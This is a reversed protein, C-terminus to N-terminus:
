PGVITYTCHGDPGCLPLIAKPYPPPACPPCAGAAPDCVEAELSANKNYAILLDPNGGGCDECCNSGWRVRCEDDSSCASLADTRLDVATCNGTRCLALYSPMDVSVCGPCAIDGTCMQAQLQGLKAQNVATWGSLPASPDCYGGCCNTAFLACTGPSDCATLSTANGTGGSAAGGSGGAASGGTASGGSGSSGGGTTSGGCATAMALAVLWPMAGMRM